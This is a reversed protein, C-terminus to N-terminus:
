EDEETLALGSMELAADVDVGGRTLREFVLANRDRELAREARSQNFAYHNSIDITFDPLMGQRRVAEQILRVESMITDEYFARQLTILNAYQASNPSGLEQAPVGSDASIIRRWEEMQGASHEDKPVPLAAVSNEGYIPIAEYTLSNNLATRNEDAEAKTEPSQQNPFTFVYRPKVIDTQVSNWAKYTQGELKLITALRQTAKPPSLLSEIAAIESAPILEGKIADKYNGDKQRLIQGNRYVSVEFAVPMDATIFRERLRLYACGNLYVEFETIWIIRNWGVDEVKDVGRVIGSSVATARKQAAALLLISKTELLPQTLMSRQPATSFTSVGYREYGLFRGVWQKLGM